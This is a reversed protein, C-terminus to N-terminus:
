TPWSSRRKSWNSFEGIQKSYDIKNAEEDYGEYPRHLSEDGNRSKGAPGGNTNNDDNKARDIPNKNRNQDTAM